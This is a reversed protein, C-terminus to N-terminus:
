VTETAETAERPLDRGGPRLDRGDPRLVRAGGPPVGLARAIEPPLVHTTVPAHVRPIAPPEHPDARGPDSLVTIGDGLLDLTSVTLGNRTLWHHALRGNLDWPLAEEPTCRAGNPDASREVNHLAVPRREAEYSHLLGDGAWGRLVWALKWGLDYGDHIATNMGTGGRPTMQHAADGVLFGRGARFREAVQAAFGFESVSEIRPRLGRVGAAAAILETLQETTRDVLPVQGPRHERGYHWRDGPGRPTLIGSAAPDTIVNLGYRRGDLFAALPARFQVGYYGGRVPSGDLGIGLQERVTSHAGDAGVVYLARLTRARGGDEDHLIARVGGADQEVGVLRSGFRVEVSAAERLRALLMPELHDQPVWAPAAPSVRAAEESTPYGLPFERGEGSALAPTVWGRPVVDAAGARVADALGWSRLIEMSRTSVVLARSLTSVRPRKEAVLVEIGYRALTLAMVLGAPGAGAIVVEVNGREKDAM